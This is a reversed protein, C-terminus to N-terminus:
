SKRKEEPAPCTPYVQLCTRIDHKEFCLAGPPTPPEIDSENTFPDSASPIITEDIASIAAARSAGCALKRGGGSLRGSALM